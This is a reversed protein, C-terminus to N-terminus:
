ILKTNSIRSEREVLVKKTCYTHISIPDIGKLSFLGLYKGFISKLLELNNIMFPAYIEPLTCTHCIDTFPAYIARIIYNRM